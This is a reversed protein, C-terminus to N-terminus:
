RHRTPAGDSKHHGIQPTQQHLKKTQTPRPQGLNSKGGGNQNPISRCFCTAFLLSALIVVGVAGCAVTFTWIKHRILNELDDLCGKRYRYSQHFRVDSSQCMSENMPRPNIHAQDELSNRLQCCTRAVTAEFGGLRQLRWLSQDYDFHGDLGCCRFKTQVYDIAATFPAQIGYDNRLKNALKLRVNTILREQFIIALLGTALDLAFIM